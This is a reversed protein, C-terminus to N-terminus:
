VKRLGEESCRREQFKGGDGKVLAMRGRRCGKRRAAGWGQGPREGARALQSGQCPHLWQGPLLPGLLLLPLHSLSVSARKDRDGRGDIGRKDM